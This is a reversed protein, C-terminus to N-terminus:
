KQRARARKSTLGSSKGEDCKGLACCCSEDALECEGHPRACYVRSWAAM